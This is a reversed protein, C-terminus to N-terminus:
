PLYIYICVYLNDVFYFTRIYSYRSEKPFVASRWGRNDWTISMGKALPADEESCRTTHQAKVASGEGTPFLNLHEVEQLIMGNLLYNTVGM